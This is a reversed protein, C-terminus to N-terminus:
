QEIATYKMPEKLMGAEMCVRRNMDKRNELNNDILQITDYRDRAVYRTKRFNKTLKGVKKTASVLILASLLSAVCIGLIGWWPMEQLDEETTQAVQEFAEAMARSVSQPKKIRFTKEVIESQVLQGTADKVKVHVMVECAGKSLIVKKSLERDMTVSRGMVVKMNYTETDRVVGSQVLWEKVSKTDGCVSEVTEEDDSAEEGICLRVADIKPYLDRRTSSVDLKLLDQDTYRVKFTISDDVNANVMGITMVVLIAVLAKM